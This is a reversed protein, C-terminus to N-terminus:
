LDDNFIDCLDFRGSTTKKATIISIFYQIANNFLSFVFCVYFYDFLGPFRINKREIFWRNIFSFNNKKQGEREDVDDVNLKKIMM